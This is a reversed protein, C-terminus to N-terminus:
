KYDIFRFRRNGSKGSKWTARGTAAQIGDHKGILRELQQRKLQLKRDHFEAADRHTAYERMIAEAEADGSLMDLTNRPFQSQLYADAGPSGDLEPPHGAIVNEFWFKRCRAILASELKLNRKIRFVCFQHRGFLVALDAFPLDTLALYWACQILYAAPVEDTGEEGYDTRKWGEATKAELVGVAVGNEDLMLRDVSGGMWPEHPNIITGNPNDETRLDRLTYGTREAYLNCVLSELETGVRMVIPLDTMEDQLGIKKQWVDFASSWTSQGVIAAADPGGIYGRRDIHPKM